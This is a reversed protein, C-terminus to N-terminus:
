LAQLREITRRRARDTGRNGTRRTIRAKRTAWGRNSSTNRRLTQGAIEALAFPTGTGALSRRRVHNRRIMGNTLIIDKRTGANRHVMVFGRHRTTKRKRSTLFTRSGTIMTAGDKNVMSGTKNPYEVLSGEGGGISDPGFIEKLSTKPVMTHTDRGVVEVITGKSGSGEGGMKRLQALTITERPHAGVMLIPDGFPSDLSDDPLSAGKHAVGRDMPRLVKRGIQPGKGHIVRTPEVVMARRRGSKGRNFEQRTNQEMAVMETTTTDPTTRGENQVGTELVAGFDRFPFRPGTETLKQTKRRMVGGGDAEDPIKARFKNAGLIV